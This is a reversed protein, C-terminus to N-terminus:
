SFKSNGWHASTSHSQTHISVNSLEDKFLNAYKTCLSFVKSSFSSIQHCMKQWDLQLKQLWDRGLLSPRSGSVVILTLTETQKGYQVKVPLEGVVKMVVNPYTKLLVNSKAPQLEPFVTKYTDESIISVEARTDVEM